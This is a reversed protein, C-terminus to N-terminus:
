NWTAIHTQKNQPASHIPLTMERSYGKQRFHLEHERWSSLYRVEYGGPAQFIQSSIPLAIYFSISEFPLCCLCFCKAQTSIFVPVELWLCDESKLCYKLTFHSERMVNTCCRSCNRGWRSQPNRANCYPLCQAKLSICLWMCEQM